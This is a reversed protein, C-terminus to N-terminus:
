RLMNSTDTIAAPPTELPMSVVKSGQKLDLKDLHVARFVQNDYSRFYYVRRKLDKIVVWMTCDYLTQKDSKERSIGKPIDLSMLIHNGLDVAQAAGAPKLSFQTLMVARVFRSPPTANLQRNVGVTV